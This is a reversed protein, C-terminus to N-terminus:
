NRPIPLLLHQEGFTINSPNVAGVIDRFIVTGKNDSFTVPYKRTRQIDTWIKMELPFERLRETWIEEVFKSKDFSALQNYITSRDVNSYARARVDTLYGIAEPTVGETMAIAEAAILLIEAYRYIVVDKQSMGGGFLAERDFWFYPTRSFTQIITKEGKEYRVFSHFFQQEHSRIDDPNYIDILAQTPQYANQTKLKLVGWEVANKSLSLSSLLRDTAQTKYSYILENNNNQTRLVNYASTGSTAGNPTLIHKGGSIVEKATEAARKYNDQLLPYGSMTLYVDALLMQASSRSIRFDNKAFAKDPLNPIARNLDYTIAQYVQSLESIENSGIFSNQTVLPVGGFLKALYFYNFARFFRTEAEIRNKQETSLRTNSLLNDIIENCMEIARYAQNWVNKSYDNMGGDFLLLRCSNYLASESGAENDFFGSLYGGIAAIPVDAFSCEGYFTPAGTRYLANVAETVSNASEYKGEFEQETEFDKKCSYFSMVIFVTAIILYSKKM